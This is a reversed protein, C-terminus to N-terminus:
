GKLSEHRGFAVAPAIERKANIRGYRDFLQCWFISRHQKSTDSVLHCHGVIPRCRQRAHPKNVFLVQLFSAFLGRLIFIFVMRVMCFYSFLCAKAYLIYLKASHCQFWPAFSHIQWNNQYGEVTGIPICKTGILLNLFIGRSLSQTWESINYHSTTNHLHTLTEWDIKLEWIQRLTQWFLLFGVLWHRCLM